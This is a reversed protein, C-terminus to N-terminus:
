HNREAYQALPKGVPLVELNEIKVLRALLSMHHPKLALAARRGYELSYSHISHLGSQRADQIQEDLPLDHEHIWAGYKM